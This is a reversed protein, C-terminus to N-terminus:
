SAPRKGRAGSTEIIQYRVRDRAEAAARALSEAYRHTELGAPGVALTYTRPMRAVFVAGLLVGALGLLVAVTVFISRLKM